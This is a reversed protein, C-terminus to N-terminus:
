VLRSGGKKRIAVLGGFHRARNLEYHSDFFLIRDFEGALGQVGFPDLLGESQGEKIRGLLQKTLMIKSQDEGPPQWDLDEIFYWGGDSLLPFLAVFTAQQDASAHSGDDVIVDIPETALRQALADLETDDSQDCRIYQVRDKRTPPGAALGASYIGAFPFYELWLEASAVQLAEDTRTIELLGRLGLRRNGILQEYVRAYAHRNGTHRNKDTSFRDALESLRPFREVPQSLLSLFTGGGASGPDHRGSWIHFGFIRDDNIYDCLESLPRDFLDSETWDISNFFMPSFVSDILGAGCDSAVYDSLLKPGVDGFDRATGGFFAELALRYLTKLHESHRRAYIVNGCIFHENRAAPRWQLNFFHDGRFPFPRLLVVDGDMWLGGHEYLVAYRFVDSFYRIETAGAIEEFLKTPVVDAANALEVGFQELFKLREPAYSWMRVPHGCSRMSSVAAVLADHRGNESLVEYYCHIQPVAAGSPDLLPEISADFPRSKRRREIPLDADGLFPALELFAEATTSAASVNPRAPPPPPAQELRASRKPSAGWNKLEGIDDLAAAVDNVNVHASSREDGNSGFAIMLRQRDDSWSLDAACEQGRENFFFPRTLRQLRFDSDFAAFRHWQEERGKLTKTQRLLTLWGGAFPVLRSGDCFDASIAPFDTEAIQSGGADVVRIPNWSEVIPADGRRASPQISEAISFSPFLEGAARVYFQLNSSALERTSARVSPDLSLSDCAAFGRAKRQPDRVYNAAISFEERIGYHYVWDEVFLIDDEPSQIELAREAFMAGLENDGKIRYHRAIDYLPEARSPREQFAALANSVFGAEDGSKLLNRAFRVKSTWVEEVWGGMTARKHYADAAEKHRGADQYSQALYFWYRVNDPEKKLAAKLLRIDREFKDVRNSGSAHDRYWAAALRQTGGPVDLYEHTVGHYWAGADRRVLRTNWYKLGGASRQMLQYGPATLLKRFESNEVVLEMDADDFLLYDFELSSEYARKLADNRAQGFNKFPFEHLEGPIGLKAFFDRIFEQTGDTSGTDGIVWCSVHPAVAGLCRELNAMENKVIM